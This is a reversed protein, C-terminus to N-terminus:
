NSRINCQYLDFVERVIGSESIDLGEIIEDNPIYYNDKSVKYGFPIKGGNYKGISENLVKQSRFREFMLKAEYEGFWGTVTIYM